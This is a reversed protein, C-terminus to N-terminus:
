LGEEPLKPEDYVRKVEELEKRFKERQTLEIGYDALKHYIFAKKLEPDAEVQQFFRQKEEKTMQGSPLSEILPNTRQPTLFKNM